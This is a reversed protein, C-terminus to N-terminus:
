SCLLDLTAKLTESPTGTRLTEMLTKGLEVGPQDFPNLGCALGEFIVRNEYFSWLAGLNQASLEPLIVTTFPRNGEFNFNKVAHSKGQALAVQQAALHYLCERDTTSITIFEIPLPRIGQHVLQFFAHQANTGVNTMLYPSAPIDLPIGHADVSKGLSECFLQQLHLTFISFFQTYPVVALSEFHCFLRHWIGILAAILAPNESLTPCLSKQDLDYAGSLFAKCCSEGFALAILLMGVPSSTSFRGGIEPTIYFRRFFFDTDLVSNRCSISVLHERILAETYGQSLFYDCIRRLHDHTEHTGGSKSAIIFLTTELPLTKLIPTSWLPDISSFFYVQTHSSYCASLARYLAMPGLHSGGIGVQIIHTYHHTRAFEFCTNLEETYASPTPNRTSHFDSSLGETLNSLHSNMIDSLRDTLSLEDSLSQLERLIPGSTLAGSFSFSLHTSSCRTRQIRDPTYCDKLNPPTQALDLLKSYAHTESLSPDRQTM